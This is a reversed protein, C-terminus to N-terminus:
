DDDRHIPRALPPQAHGRRGRMTNADVENRQGKEASAAAEAPQAAAHDHGARWQLSASAAPGDQETLRVGRSSPEALPDDFSELVFHREAPMITRGDSERTAWVRITLTGQTPWDARSELRLYDDAYEIFLEGDASLYAVDFYIGYSTDAPLAEGDLSRYYPPTNDHRILLWHGHRGALDLHARVHGLGLRGVNRVVIRLEIDQEAVRVQVCQPDAPDHQVSLPTSRWERWQRLMEVGGVALVSAGLLLLGIAIAYWATGAPDTARQIQGLILFAAAAGMLGVGVLLAVSPSVVPLRKKM